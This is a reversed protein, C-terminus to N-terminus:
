FLSEMDIKGPLEKKSGSPESVEPAKIASIISKLQKSASVRLTTSPATLADVKEAPLKGVEVLRSLKSLNLQWTQVQDFADEMQLGSEKVLEAVASQSIPTRKSEVSVSSGEVLMKTTGKENVEGSSRAKEILPARLAALKEEVFKELAKLLVHAQVQEPTTLSEPPSSLIKIKSLPALEVSLDEVSM